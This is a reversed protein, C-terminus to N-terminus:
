LNEKQCVTMEPIYFILELSFEASLNVHRCNIIVSNYLQVQAVEGLINPIIFM